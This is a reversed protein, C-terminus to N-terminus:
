RCARGLLWEAAEGVSARGDGRDVMLNAERMLGVDVSGVLRRLAGVVGADDVVRPGLLVIADYAPFAEKPDGLVVLDNAAIRGDSSFAAVVDVTGDEVASYMFSSDFSVREAFSLGYVDRVRDWEPRGFFEYDGGIKLEGAKAALEEITRIGLREAEERRMALAYTNEFGLRGLCRVGHKEHLWWASESYVTEASASDLRKMLTSWITGTYDVYVDVDGNVLADFVVTSGLSGMTEAAIGHRELQLAIARSLIYQETFTKAGVVVTGVDRQGEEVVVDRVARARDFEVMPAMLGGGVLVVLGVVAVVGRWRSRKASAAEVLRNVMKLTTTKGSGSEGVLAIMEGRMVELNVERVVWTAGGDFSHSVGGLRIMRGPPKGGGRTEKAGDMHIVM